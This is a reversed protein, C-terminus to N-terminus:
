AQPADHGGEVPAVEPERVTVAAGRPVVVVDYGLGAMAESWRSLAKNRGAEMDLLTTRDIRLRSALESQTLGAHKRAGALADALARQGRPRMWM